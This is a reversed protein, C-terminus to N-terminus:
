FKISKFLGHKKMLTIVTIEVVKRTKKEIESKTKNKNNNNSAQKSSRMTPTRRRTRLMPTRKKVM